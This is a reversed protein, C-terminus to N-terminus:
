WLNLNIARGKYNLEKVKNDFITPVYESPFYSEMYRLRVVGVEDDCVDQRYGRGGSDGGERQDGGGDM